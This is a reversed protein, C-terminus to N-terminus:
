RLARKIREQEQFAAVDAPDLNVVYEVDRVGSQTLVEWGTTIPKPTSTDATTTTTTDKRSRWFDPRQTQTPTTSSRQRLLKSVLFLEIIM